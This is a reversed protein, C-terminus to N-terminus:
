VHKGNSNWIFGKNNIMHIDIVNNTMKSEMFLNPVYLNIVIILNNDLCGNM